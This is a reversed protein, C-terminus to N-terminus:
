RARFWGSSRGCGTRSAEEPESDGEDDRSRGPPETEDELAPCNLSEHGNMYEATTAIFVEPAPDATRSVRGTARQCRGDPGTEVAPQGNTAVVRDGDDVVVPRRVRGKVHKGRAM